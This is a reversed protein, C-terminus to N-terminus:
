KLLSVHGIKKYKNGQNDQCNLKWVYVGDQVPRNKYTGDWQKNINDAEFILEGWRNFVLFSYNEDSIGYGIPSFQDNVGDNDPTFGNPVYLMSEDGIIVIECTEDICGHENIATLCVEYSGGVDSPFTYGPNVVESSNSAGTVDFVWQYYTANVSTNNFHIDPHFISTPQPTFTFSATPYGYVCIYDAISYSAPCGEPTIIDLSVGWCGEQNFTYNVPSCDSSSGGDGFTWNCQSGAPVGNATFNVEVPLCGELTDAEFSIIPLPVVTIIVSASDTICGDDALVTYTTTTNPSVTQNAGQGVGQNWTYTVATGAGGTAVASINAQDGECITQNSQATVSIGPSVDVTECSPQSVCGMSDTAVVCYTTQVSPSVMFNQTSFQNDWSYVYPATGGSANSTLLTSDGPCITISGSSSVVVPSPETITAGTSVTCGTADQAVINYNGPCLGTFVNNSQFTVGNDISYSVCGLATITIEGDCLGNCSVNEVSTTATLAAPQTLGITTDAMCGASDTVTVFYNGEGLNVAPNTTQNGAAAGWQYIYPAIGGQPALVIQGDTDGYCTPNQPTNPIDMDSFVITVQDSTICGMGDDETWTFTYDGANPVTVLTNFQDIVGFAASAPGSWVGPINNNSGDLTAQLGNCIVQDPGANAISGPLITVQFSSEATCNPVTGSQNYVYITQSSTIQTGTAIAGVGGPSSYYSGNTLAPLTYAGCATEDQPSDVLPTPIVVIDATATDTQGLADTLVVTYTTTTAPTDTQTDTSPDTTGQATVGTLGGGSYTFTYNTIGSSGVATLTGVDGECITDGELTVYCLCTSVTANQTLTDVCGDANTVILQVPHNGATPYTYSPNQTNDDVVGDGDFDWEWNTIDAAVTSQDTFVTPLSQCDVTSTFSAVPLELVEVPIITDHICGDPSEIHLSVNHTGSSPFTYSPNQNTNDITGDNDFDWNWVSVTTGDALSSDTFVTPLGECVETSTFDATLEKPIITITTDVTIACNPGAVPTITCEYTGSATPTITQTTEGTPSWLYSAGGPPATLTTPGCPVNSGVLLELPNCSVDVYAYGYHGGQACDGVIFEITVNQTMYNHLPVFVTTWDKYSYDPNGTWDNVTIWGAQGDGATASYAGCPITNGNEDYLNVKFFPQEGPAHNPDQLVVAYSYSFNASNADVQFTQVLSAARAGTGNYDGLAASCAGGNPDVTSIVGTIADTGPATIHHFVTAACPCSNCTCVGNITSSGTCDNGCVFVGNGADCDCNPNPPPFNYCQGTPDSCWTNTPTSNIMVNVNNDVDGANMEWGSFDCAEFNPNTCPDGPGRQASGGQKNFLPKSSDNVLEKQYKKFYQYDDEVLPLIDKVMQKVEAKTFLVEKSKRMYLEHDVKGKFIEIYTFSNSLYYKRVSETHLHKILCYKSIDRYLQEKLEVDLFHHNMLENSSIKDEEARNFVSPPPLQLPPFNKQAVLTSQLLVFLFFVGRKLLHKYISFCKAECNPQTTNLRMANTEIFNYDCNGVGILKNLVM